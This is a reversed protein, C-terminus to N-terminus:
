AGRKFLSHMKTSCLMRTQHTAIEVCYKVSAVYIFKNDENSLCELCHQVVHNGHLDKILTLSGPELASVVLSIQQGTELTEILKQVVRTGHANLSIEVLQGPEQIVLTLTFLAEDNPINEIFQFDSHLLEYFPVRCKGEDVLLWIVDLCSHLWAIVTKDLRWSKLIVAEDVGHPRQDWNVLWNLMHNFIGAYTVPKLSFELDTLIIKCRQQRLNSNTIDNNQVSPGGRLKSQLQSSSIDSSKVPSLVAGSSPEISPQAPSGITHVSNLPSAPNSSQFNSSNTITNPPPLMGSQSLSSFTITSVAQSM